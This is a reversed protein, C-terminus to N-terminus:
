EGSMFFQAVYWFLMAISSFLALSAGVHAGQPYHKIINSTTYLVAGGSYALMAVVFWMGLQFGFLVNAVIAIIAVIGGWIMFSRLFSFDKGTFMVIATLAAFAVLTTIAAKELLAPNYKVAGYILPVLMVAWLLVYGGLALYQTTQDKGEYAFKSVISSLFMFIGLIILWNMNATIQFITDAIGTKFFVTEIGVLLLIAGLLHYYTKNLFGQRVEPADFAVPRGNSVVQDNM